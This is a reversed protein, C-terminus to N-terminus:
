DEDNLYETIFPDYRSEAFSVADELSTFYGDDDFEPASIWFIGHFEHIDICFDGYDGKAGLSQVVYSSSDFDGSSIFEELIEIIADLAKKENLMKPLTIRFAEDLSITNEEM